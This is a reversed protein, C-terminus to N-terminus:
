HRNRTTRGLARAARRELAPGDELRGIELEVERGQEGPEGVQVIGVDGCRGVDIRRLHPVVRGRRRLLLGHRVGPAARAQRRRSVGRPLQLPQTEGDLPDRQPDAARAMGDAVVAAAVDVHPPHVERVAVPVEEVIGVERQFRGTCRRGRLAPRERRGRGVARQRRRRYTLPRPLDEVERGISRVLADLLGYRAELGARPIQTHCPHPDVRPRAAEDDRPGIARRLEPRDGHTGRAGRELRHLGHHLRVGRGRRQHEGHHGCRVPVVHVHGM